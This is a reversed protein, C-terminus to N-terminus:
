TENGGRRKRAQSDRGTSVGLSRPHRVSDRSLRCPVWADRYRPMQGDLSSRGQGRIGSVGVAM